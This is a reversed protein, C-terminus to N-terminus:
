MMLIMAIGVASGLGLGLGLITESGASSETLVRKFDMRFVEKACQYLQTERNYKMQGGFVYAPEFRIGVTAGAFRMRDFDVDGIVEYEDGEVFDFNTDGTFAEIEGIPTSLVVDKSVVLEGDEIQVIEVLDSCNNKKEGGFVIPVNDMVACAMDGRPIELFASKAWTGYTFDYRETSGLPNCFDTNFGGIAFAYRLDDEDDGEDEGGEDVDYFSQFNDATVAISFDGRGEEMSEADMVILFGDDDVRLDPDFYILQNLPEYDGDYGGAVFMAMALPNEEEKDKDEDKDKGNAYASYPPVPGTFAAGDSTPSKWNGVTVWSEGLTPFVDLCDVEPILDDYLTRGGFLCLKGIGSDYAASHRYRERPLDPLPLFTESNVLFLEATSSVDDCVFFDLAPAYVNFTDCGGALLIARAGPISTATFDSRASSMEGILTPTSVIELKPLLFANSPPALSLTLLLLFM